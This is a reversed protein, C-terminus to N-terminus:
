PNPSRGKTSSVPITFAQEVTWNAEFLRYRLTLRAIGLEKAWESLIKTKGKYTITQNIRTNSNQEKQTAWRCNSPEYNGNNNKRDLSHKLSPRKDMDEFFHRFDQRWRDCVKIGRGGYLHWGVNNPNECRDIMHSWSRYEPTRKMGHKTLSKSINKITQCGCHTTLNKRLSYSGADKSNGCECICLFKSSGKQEPKRPIREVVTLLGFQKGIMNEIMFLGFCPTLLKDLIEQFNAGLGDVYLM